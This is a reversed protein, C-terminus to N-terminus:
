SESRAKPRLPNPAQARKEITEIHSDVADGKKPPDGKARQKPFPTGPTRPPQKTDDDGGDGNESAATLAPQFPKWAEQAKAYEELREAAAGEGSPIFYPVKVTTVEDGDKVREDRIEIRGDEIGPLRSMVTPDWGLKSAATEMTRQRETKATDAKLTDREKHLTRVDDLSTIGLEKAQDAPILVAGEPLDAEGAEALQAKLSRNQSRYRFNDELLRENLANGADSGSGNAGRIMTRIESMFEDLDAEATAATGGESGKKEGKKKAM